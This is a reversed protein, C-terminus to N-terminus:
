RANHQAGKIQITTPRGEHRLSYRRPRTAADIWPFRRRLSAHLRYSNAHRFHGEYSAWVSRIRRFDDPTGTAKSDAVHASEWAALAARAHSVVRRRVTTHTPRVVYGLFDIGDGLPRPDADEKLSLRLEDALFRVIEAKWASLQAPDRHVLVFDDVYRLYRPVKLTHKIFQDLRDLYVNAFFQSSLNGIPIGCGAPANALQKHAPVLARAEPSAVYRVGIDLPSRHLLAHTARRVTIPLGRREMRTKLMRYLTPRHIRNFFNAIDLQLFYGVAQGSHVERVFGQLRRVAAHSGKGRRNAFSDAIFTRDYVAELQPILWHHVVRDGFDPAHIERAKPREAIFCTTPRPSWTGVNLQEQLDLLRDAWNTDFNLQNASPVKQRRAQKWAAHLDRLTVHQAEAGQFERAPGRVARVRNNNDRNNINSNGNNGNVIWANDGRDQSGNSCASVPYRSSTM